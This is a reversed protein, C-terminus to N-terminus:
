KRSLTESWGNRWFGVKLEGDETSEDAKVKKLMEVVAEELGKELHLESADLHEGATVEHEQDKTDQEAQREM